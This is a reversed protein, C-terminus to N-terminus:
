QSHNLSISDDKVEEDLDYALARIKGMYDTTSIKNNAFMSDLEAVAEPNSEKAMRYRHLDRIIDPLMDARQKCIEEPVNMSDRFITTYGCKFCGMKHTYLEGFISHNYEDELIGHCIPCKTNPLKLRGEVLDYTMDFIDSKCPYFEGKVGKIIYDGTNFEMMGESTNIFTNDYTNGTRNDFGHRCLCKRDTFTQIEEWNDGTYQIAEIVIPKKRYKGIM